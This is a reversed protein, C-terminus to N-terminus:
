DYIGAASARGAAVADALDGPPNWEGDPVQDRDSNAALYFRGASDRAVVEFALLDNGDGLSPSNDVRAKRIVDRVRGGAFSSDVPIALATARAVYVLREGQARALASRVRAYTPFLLVALTLAVATVALAAM